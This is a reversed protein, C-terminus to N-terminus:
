PPIYLSHFCLLQLTLQTPITCLADMDAPWDLPGLLVVAPEAAGESVVLAQECDGAEESVWRVLGGGSLLVVAAPRSDSVSLYEGCCTVNNIHYELTSALGMELNLGLRHEHRLVLIYRQRM